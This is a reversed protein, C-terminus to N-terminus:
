RFPENIAPGKKSKPLLKTEWRERFFLFIGLSPFFFLVLCFLFGTGKQSHVEGAAFESGRCAQLRNSVTGM